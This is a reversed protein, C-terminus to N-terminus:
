ASVERSGPSQPIAPKMGFPPSIPGPSRLKLRPSDSSVNAAFTSGYKEAWSVARSRPRSRSRLDLLRKEARRRQGRPERGLAPAEEGAEAVEVFHVRMGPIERVLREDVLGEEAVLARLVAHLDLPDRRRVEEDLEAGLAAIAVCKGPVRSLLPPRFPVVSNACKPPSTPSLALQRAPADHISRRASSRAYSSTSASLCGTTLANVPFDRVQTASPTKL